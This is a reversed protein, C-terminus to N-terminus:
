PCSLNATGDDFLDCDLAPVIDDAVNVANCFSCNTREAVCGAFLPDAVATCAGAFEAGVPTFGASICKTVASAIKGDAKAIKLSPDPQPPGLCLSVLDIDSTIVSANNRKCYRFVKWREKLGKAASKTVDYQCKGAVAGVIVSPGFLEHSLDNAVYEAAHTICAGALCSGGPCDPPVTCLAGENAGDECCSAGNVGWAPLTPCYSAYDAIQKTEYQQTKPEVPDDVCLTADGGGNKYQTSVCKADIKGATDALKGSTNNMRDICKYDQNYVYADIASGLQLDDVLVRDDPGLDVTYTLRMETAALTPNSSRLSDYFSTPTSIVIQPVAGLPVPTTSQNITLDVLGAPSSVPGLTPDDFNADYVVTWGLPPGAVSIASSNITVTLTENALGVNQLFGQGAPPGAFHVASGIPGTGETVRGSGSLVGGIPAGTLDFDIVGQDVLNLDGPGDNVITLSTANGDFTVDLAFSAPASLLLFIGAM